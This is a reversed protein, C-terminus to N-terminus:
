VCCVSSLSPPTRSGLDIRSGLSTKHGIRDPMAAPPILITYIKLTQKEYAPDGSLLISKPYNRWPIFYGM